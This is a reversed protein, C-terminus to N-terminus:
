ETTGEKKMKILYIALGAIIFAGFGLFVFGLTKNKTKEIPVNSLATEKDDINKEVTDTSPVAEEKIETENAVAEVKEESANESVTEVTEAVPTTNATATRGPVALSVSASANASTTSAAPTTSSTSESTSLSTNAKVKETGNIGIFNIIAGDNNNNATFKLLLTTDAPVNLKDFTLTQYDNTGHAKVSYKSAVTGTVKRGNVTMEYTVDMSRAGWWNHVYMTLNYTGEKLPLTYVVPTTSKNYGYHGTAFLSAKDSDSTYSGDNGSYGWESTDTKAKDSANNKLSVTQSVADFAKSGTEETACDIFYIVDSPVVQVYTSVSFENGTSPCVVKGKVEVRDYAKSFQKANLSDWEIDVTAWKGNKLKAQTTKPLNSPVKGVVTAGFNEVDSVRVITTDNAAAQEKAVGYVKFEAINCNHNEDPVYYKIYRFSDKAEFSKATVINLGKGYSAPVTYLRTWTNGDKSGAVIADKCRDEYDHRPAFAFASINYEELLDIILYGNGVGDFFTGLDGDVANSAEDQGAKWPTSGSVQSKSIEIENLANEGDGFTVGEVIYTTISNGKLCAYLGDEYTAMEGLEKWNEKRSTRVATAKDGVSGFMSLDFDVYVDDAEYNVAVIILRDNETDLACLTNGTGGIITYGPRIYRTFQGMSYYKKTLIIDQNDHDGVACGWYGSNLNVMGSDKKGNRGNASVHNDIVQWMIWASPLLGNMDRQILSAFYLGAAMEGANEGATGAGDVESMWLNQGYKDALDRLGTYNSGSYTHSDIRTVISKAEDSLKKYSTIATDVSTEDSASYIISGDAFGNAKMAANLAVIIDSMSKGQDFHCGEQKDSNAGWYNTYPENMPTISQFTIGWEDRFHAAVDALYKAFATYADDRLNNSGANEAGSSCLSNTMFYPPSNSFAEVILDDGYAEKAKLLVNRQDADKTWDYAWSYTANGSKITVRNKETKPATAKVITKGNVIVEPNSWYGPIESDTRKIHNHSPNDGGGINYRVIDMSLGDEGYFLEAAKESMVDSYGIRNAWWCFSTGWGEFKGDNFTSANDPLITIVTRDVDPEDPTVDTIAFYAVSAAESGDENYGFTITVETDDDKVEFTNKFNKKEGMKGKLTVTGLKKDVSEGNVEYTVTIDTARTGTNWWEYHGSTLEYTGEQLTVKYVVDNGSLRGKQKSGYYGTQYLDTLGSEISKTGGKKVLGTDANQNIKDGLFEKLSNFTVRGSKQEDSGCDVFYVLNESYLVAKHTIVGNGKACTGKLTIQEGIYNDTSSVSWTVDTTVEENGYKVTMSAPMSEIGTVYAPLKSSDYTFEGSFDTMDKEITFYSVVGADGSTGRAFEITVLTNDNNVAFEGTVYATSGSGQVTNQGLTKTVEGNGNNLTVKVVTTRPGQWWEYQESTLIYNGKDLTVKYTINKSGDNTGYFGTGNIGLSNDAGKKGDYSNDLYGWAKGETYEQDGTQNKLGSVLSKVTSYTNDTYDPFLNAASDVMYVFNPSYVFMEANFERNNLAPVTGTVTVFKGAESISGRTVTWTVDYDKIQGDVTLISVKKPLTDISNKKIVKPLETKVSIPTLRNLLSLDWDKHANITVKGDVTLEVPLWVYTPAVLENASPSSTNWRDGMYIFKGSEYEFINTSQTGFTLGAGYQCVSSNTICPNGLSTWPGLISDATAVDAANAGWGTCGSTMLFYKGNSKFLAPAERAKGIYINIRTFNDSKGTADYLSAEAVPDSALATYEDNLKSIIMTQNEESSYIIYATKDDDVFLNMDRAMGKSSDHAGNVYNLRSRHIFKFPGTPSDSVACGASAAAYNATSTETPGDAHFWMVYKGTKENFIVKPREIVSTTDNIALLVAQKQEQTYDGYLDKFYDEEFDYMDTLDRLAVGENKWNYLDTSSYVRVGGGVTRYGDTKDEGYWYWKTEGNYTFKQVQGGHAQIETGDTDYWKAGDTGTFSAYNVASGKAELHEFHYQLKSVYSKIREDTQLSPDAALREVYMRAEAYKAYSSPSYSSEDGAKYQNLVKTFYDNDMTEPVKVFIYSMLADQSTSTRGSNHVWVELMGDECSVTYTKEIQSNKSVTVSDVRKGDIDIDAPRSDWPNYFGVTVDYKGDPVEFKYLIGTVDNDYAVKDSLYRLSSTIKGAGDDRTGYIIKSGDEVYGWNKGTKEDAGFLQDVNSQYYGLKYGSVPEDPKATGTEVMYLVNDCEKLTRTAGEYELSDALTSVNNGLMLTLAMVGALIRKVKKGM